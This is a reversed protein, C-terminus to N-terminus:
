EAGLVPQGCAGSGAVLDLHLDGEVRGRALCDYRGVKGRRQVRVHRCALEEVPKREAVLLGVQEPNAGGLRLLGTIATHRLANLHEASTPRVPSKAAGGPSRLCGLDCSATSSRHGPGRRLGLRTDTGSALLSVM